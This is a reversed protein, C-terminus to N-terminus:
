ILVAAMEACADVDVLAMLDSKRADAIANGVIISSRQAPRDRFSEAGEASNPRRM